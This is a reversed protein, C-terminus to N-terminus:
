NVKFGIKKLLDIYRPDDALEKFIWDSYGNLYIMQGSHMNFAESLHHIAKESDGLGNYIMAFFVPDVYQNESQKILQELYDKAEKEFGLKGYVLHISSLILPDSISNQNVIELTREVKKIANLTDKLGLYNFSMCLPAHVFEPNFNLVKELIQNSKEFEGSYIHFVALFQYLMPNMPDLEIAQNTLAISEEYRRQWRLYQAYSLYVEVSRPNYKIATRFHEEPSYIDWDIIAKVLGFTVLAEGLTPDIEVAKLAVEKTKEYISDPAEISYRAIFQYCQAM